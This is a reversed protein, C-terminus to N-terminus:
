DFLRLDEQSIHSSGRSLRLLLALVIHYGASSYLTILLTSAANLDVSFLLTAKGHDAAHYISDLLQVLATETSHGPRYASQHQNYNSSALIHPQIHQLFLREIIKSIFNLNSIPRYSSSPLSEDLSPSKLLPTVSATKFRSPFKGDTFSMNALHAIIESFSHHCELLLSTPLTDMCSSKPPSKHLLMAQKHLGHQDNLLHKILWYKQKADISNQASQGRPSIGHGFKSNSHLLKRWHVFHKCPSRAPSQTALRRTQLPYSTHISLKEEPEQLLNQRREM